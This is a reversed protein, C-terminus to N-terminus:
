HLWKTLVIYVSIVLSLIYYIGQGLNKKRRMKKCLISLFFDCFITMLRICELYSLSETRKDVVIIHADLIVTAERRSTIDIQFFTCGIVDNKNPSNIYVRRQHRIPWPM